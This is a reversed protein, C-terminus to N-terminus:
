IKYESWSKIGLVIISKNDIKDRPILYRNGNGCLVFLFDFDEKLYKTHYTKERYGGFTRLDVIYGGSKEKDDSYKCQIRNLIGKNDVVLDYKDTDSFPIFVSETNGTFYAVAEALAATGKKKTNM